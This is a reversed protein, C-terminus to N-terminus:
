SKGTTRDSGGDGPFPSPAPHLLERLAALTDDFAERMQQLLDGRERLFIVVGGAEAQHCVEILVNAGVNAANGKLAHVHDCFAAHNRADCAQEIQELLDRGEREYEAIVRAMEAPDHYLRDLEALVSVDLVERPKKTQDTEESAAPPALVSVQSERVFGDVAALLDAATVPKSLFADAGAEASERQAEISANATLMIIPLRSRPRRARYRQLVTAGDLGPMHMDLVALRYGGACLRELAQDGTEVLDVEYDARELMRRVIMLNTRNDDAVLIRPHVKQKRSWLWPAVSVVGDSPPATWMPSSHLAAAVLRLDAIPSLVASYGWDRMQKALPSIHSVLILPVRASAAKESLEDFYHGGDRAIALAADVFVAHVPNGLRLARALANLTASGSDVCILQGSLTKLMGDFHATTAKDQTLLLARIGPLAEVEPAPEDRQAQDFPIECCFVSGVGKTSEVGIRGGMLEVLQKAITTGLGTGGHRRTTSVDEQAFSEFVQNLAEPAIGVGTDFVEIRVTAKGDAGERGSAELCVSGHETFKVANSLLNLLVECLHHPDGLLRYPMNPAIRTLLRLGKKAAMPRAMAAASNIVQHLDLDIREIVLKGAEIKSFDLVNGIQRLSVEVSDRVVQLLSREESSFKRGGELLETAGLIGTLPTRLEHSMRALFRSKSASAEEARHLTTNFMRILHAAYLPLVILTLLIGGAFTLHEPWFESIKVVVTFGVISLTASVILAPIGFRFGNGITVWLYVVFFPVGIEGTHIMVYTTAAVDMINGGFQRLRSPQKARLILFFIIISYVLLGALFWAWTPLPRMALPDFAILLYVAVAVVVLVRLLAQGQERGLMGGRLPLLRNRLQDFHYGLRSSLM